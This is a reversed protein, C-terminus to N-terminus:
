KDESVQEIEVVQQVIKNKKRRPEIIDYLIIAILALVINLASCIAGMPSGILLNYFVWIASNVITVIRITLLNKSALGIALIALSAIMFLDFANTWFVAVFVSSATITLIIPVIYSKLSKKKENLYIYDLTRVLNIANIIAALPSNIFLYSAVYFASATVMFILIWKKSKLLRSVLDIGTGVFILVQSIIYLVM